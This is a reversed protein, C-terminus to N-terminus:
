AALFRLVPALLGARRPRTGVIELALDVAEREFNREYQDGRGRAALVAPLCAMRDGVICRGRLIVGKRGAAVRSLAWGVAALPFEGREGDCLVMVTGRAEAVGRVFARGASEAACLRLEPVEASLLRLVALSNDRCGDNVAVIEFSKGLSRLYTTVRRVDRGVSEESNRVAFIVSIEPFAASKACSKM